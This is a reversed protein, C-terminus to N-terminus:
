KENQIKEQEEKKKKEALAQVNASYIMSLGLLIFLGSLEEKEMPISCGYIILAYGRVNFFAIALIALVFFVVAVIRKTRIAKFPDMKTYIYNIVTNM